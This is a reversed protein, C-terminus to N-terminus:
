LSIGKIKKYLSVAHRDMLGSVFDLMLRFRLYLSLEEAFIEVPLLGIINKERSGVREEQHFKYIAQAFTQVLGPLVEFGAAQLELVSPSNYIEKMSFISIDDMFKASPISDCLSNDYKGSLIESEVDKFQTIVEGVLKNITLARLLGAQEGKDKINRLKEINLSSGLIPAVLDIYAGISVKGMRVADELDIILYCVDDAAEMLFVLPHRTFSNESTKILGVEKAVKIVIDKESQFYGFKKRSKRGLKKDVENSPCPYKIFSALMAYTLKMGEKRSQTLIRFGQANGEFCQLDKIESDSMGRLYSVGERKFFESLAEEGSHGFPPNGIDHALCSTAVLTAFDYVTYGFKKLDPYKNLIYSGAKIGLTRGVSSVELTHTLRTHVFDFEPLPIVQTKNQLKRFPSSFIIRDYDKDFDSRLEDISNSNYKSEDGLRKNSLLKFWDM